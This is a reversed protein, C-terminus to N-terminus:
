SDWKIILEKEVLEANIIGHKDIVEMVIKTVVSQAGDMGKAVGVLSIKKGRKIMRKKEAHSIIQLLNSDEFVRVILQLHRINKDKALRKLLRKRKKEKIQEDFYPKESILM